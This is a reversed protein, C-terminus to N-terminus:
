EKIFNHAGFVPAIMVRVFASRMPFIDIFPRDLFFDKSAISVRRSIMFLERSDPSINLLKLLYQDVEDGIGTM